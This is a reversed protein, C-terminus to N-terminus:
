FQSEGYERVARGVFYGVFLLGNNARVGQVRDPGAWGAANAARQLANFPTPAPAKGEDPVFATRISRREVDSLIAWAGNLAAASSLGKKTLNLESGREVLYGLFGDAMGFAVNSRMAKERPVGCRDLAAFILREDIAKSATGVADLNEMPSEGGAAL